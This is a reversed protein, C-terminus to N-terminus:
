LDQFYNQAYYQAYNAAKPIITFLFSPILLFVLVSTRGDLGPATHCM